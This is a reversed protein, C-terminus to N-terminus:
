YHWVATSRTSLCIHVAYHLRRRRRDAFTFARSCVTVELREGAKRSETWALASSATDV